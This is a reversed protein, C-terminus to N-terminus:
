TSIEYKPNLKYITKTKSCISKAKRERHLQANYCPIYQPKSSEQTIAPGGAEGVLPLRGNCFAYPKPGEGRMDERLSPSLPNSINGALLLIFNPYWCHAGKKSPASRGKGTKKLIAANRKPARPDVVATYRKRRPLTCRGSDYPKAENKSIRKQNLRTAKDKKKQKAVIAGERTQGLKNHHPKESM